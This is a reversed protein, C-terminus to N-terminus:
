TVVIDVVPTMEKPEISELLAHIALQKIYYTPSVGHVTVRNDKVAVRIGRLRGRTREHIQREITQALAAPDLRIDNAVLM